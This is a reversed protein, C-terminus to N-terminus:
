SSLGLLFSLFQEYSMLRRTAPTQKCKEPTSSYGVRVPLPIPGRTPVCGHDGSGDRMEEPLCIHWNREGARVRGEAPDSYLACRQSFVSATRAALGPPMQDERASPDFAADDPVPFALTADMFLDVNRQGFAPPAIPANADQGFLDRRALGERQRHNLLGAPPIYLGRRWAQGRDHLLHLTGPRHGRGQVAPERAQALPRQVADLGCAGGGPSRRRLGRCGAPQGGRRGQDHLRGFSMSTTQRAEPMAGERDRRAFVLALLAPLLQFGAGSDQGYGRREKGVRGVRKGAPVAPQDPVEM